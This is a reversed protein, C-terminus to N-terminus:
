SGQAALTEQANSLASKVASVSINHSSADKRLLTVTAPGILNQLQASSAETPMPKAHHDLIEGFVKEAPTQFYPTKLGTSTVPLEYMNKNIKEQETPSLLFKIFELDASLHTTTNFISLNEGAVHSMVTSGGPPMPSPLPIYGIGYKAPDSVAQQPDQSFLMAAQGREFETTDLTGTSDAILAPNIIRDPYVWQVYNALTKADTSTDFDPQGSKSYYGGGEQTMMIWDWTANATPAGIPAAVGYVGKAPDSLKKADTYFQSWSTPPKPSGAKKFLSKNYELLWTQGLFPVSIPTKGPAGVVSNSTSLFQSEGGIANYMSSTWPMFGGTRAFTSAWTNGIEAVDPGQHSTVATTLKTLFTSWPSQDFNVKIGTKKTFAAAADKLTNPTPDPGPVWWTIPGKPKAKIASKAPGASSGNSGGVSAPKAGGCAAATMSLIVGGSIVAALKRTKMNSVGM